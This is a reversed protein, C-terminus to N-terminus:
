FEERANADGTAPTVPVQAPAASPTGFPLRSIHLEFPVLRGLSGVTIDPAPRAPSVVTAFRAPDAGHPPGAFAM